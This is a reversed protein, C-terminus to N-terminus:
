VDGRRKLPDWVRKTYNAELWRERAGPTRSCVERFPCGGFRDCSTDNMPYALSPDDPPLGSTPCDQNYNDIGQLTEACSEMQGLWWGAGNHWERRQHEDRSIIQRGFRTEGVLIQMGDVVLGRPAEPLVVAGALDYLGFQNHPAFGAWFQRDLGHKTTKADALYLAGNLTGVRDLHGCLAIEDGTLRSTFGSLFTFSLEVAPKGSSLQLTQLADNQYHDLYGVLTRVLTFRNKNPDGLFVARPKRLESDWTEQLAWGVVVDLAEAHDKGESRAHHYREIGGHVALGFALHVNEGKPAYGLLISYYYKRPCTKFEGLSTSDVALQLGLWQSSFSTNSRLNERLREMSSVM